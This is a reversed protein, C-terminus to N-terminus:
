RGESIWSEIDDGSVGQIKKFRQMALVAAAGEAESRGNCPVLDAIPEGDVTITYRMGDRVERLLESLKAKADFVGIEKYM